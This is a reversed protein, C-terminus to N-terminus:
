VTPNSQPSIQHISADTQDINQRIVEEVPEPDDAEGQLILWFDGFKFYLGDPERDIDLFNCNVSGFYKSSKKHQSVVRIRLWGNFNFDFYKM